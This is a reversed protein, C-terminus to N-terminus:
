APRRFPTSGGFANELRPTMPMSSFVIHDGTLAGSVSSWRTKELPWRAIAAGADFPEAQWRARASNWSCPSEGVARLCAHLNPGCRSDIALDRVCKESQATNENGAEWNKAAITGSQAM